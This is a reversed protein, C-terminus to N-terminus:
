LALGAATSIGILQALYVLYLFPTIGFLFAFCCVVFKGPRSALTSLLLRVWFQQRIANEPRRDVAALVRDSFGDPVEARQRQAVWQQYQRNDSTM